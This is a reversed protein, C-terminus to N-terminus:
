VAAPACKTVIEIGVSDVTGLGSVVRQSFNWDWIRLRPSPPRFEIEDLRNATLSLDLQGVERRADAVHLKGLGHRLTGLGPPSNVQRHSLGLSHSHRDLCGSFGAAPSPM